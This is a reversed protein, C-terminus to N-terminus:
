ISIGTWTIATGERGGAGAGEGGPLAAPFIMEELAVCRPFLPAMEREM